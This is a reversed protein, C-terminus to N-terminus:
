INLNNLLFDIDSVSILKTSQFNTFGVDAPSKIFTKLADKLFDIGKETSDWFHTEIVVQKLIYDMVITDDYKTFLKQIDPRLSMNHVDNVMSIALDYIVHSM